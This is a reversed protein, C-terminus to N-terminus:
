GSNGWNRALERGDLLSSAGADAGMAIPDIYGNVVLSGGVLIRASPLRRKIDNILAGLKPASLLMTASLGVMTAEQEEIAALIGDHPMNTGLFRVDWGDYDLVDAVMHAGLQHFEGQMGSVVAKGRSHVSPSHKSYVQALVYQTTATAMHERAVSIRNGQWLRGVDHMATAIVEVYVSAPESTRLSHEVVTLAARRDAVLVAQLFASKKDDLDSDALQEQGVALRAANLYPEAASFVDPYDKLVELINGLSEAVIGADLNRTVLVTQLWRAYGAFADISQVEIASALFDLTYAKDELTHEVGSKWARFDPHRDFYREASRRVLEPKYQRLCDSIVTV